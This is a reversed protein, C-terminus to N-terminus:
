GGLIFFGRNKLTLVFSNRILYFTNDKCYIKAPGTLKEKIKSLRKILATTEGSEAAWDFCRRCDPDYGGAMDIETGYYVSVSGPFFYALTLAARLKGADGECLTLFRYTDHTDLMNLMMNNVMDTNRMLLNNLRDALGQEDLTEDAFYDICAKTFAYNMIGDYQDGRLFPEADHWNEGLICAGPKIAKVRKRFQRWFDHPIEDSVDLRWGDIDCERFWYEAVSFLFDACDPNSTNLKPMHDCDAFCEYNLPKKVPADGDIVFWDFYQSNEGNELVDRWQTLGEGCHNFVADLVVRMNLKHARRVLERLDETTGFQPDIKFYDWTDYKHNSPARFLPTLYIATVGLDKIYGLKDAIGKLDGGAFSKSAPIEGWGLNIYGDDKDTDGRNFRDPFIQYFVANELWEVQTHRDTENIYPFQFSNFHCRSFDYERSFGEEHFYLDGLKFIYVFQPRELPLTATYYDFLGDRRDFTMPASLYQLRFQYKGNYLIIPSVNEEKATRLRITVERKGSAFCYSSDTKHHIAHLNM